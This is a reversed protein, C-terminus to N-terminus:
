ATAGRRWNVLGPVRWELRGINAAVSEILLLVTALVLLWPALPHLPPEDAMSDIARESGLGARMPEGSTTQTAAQWRELLAAPVSRLDSERPDINVAM